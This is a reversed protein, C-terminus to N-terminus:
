RTEPYKGRYVGRNYNSNVLELRDSQEKGLYKLHKNLIIISVPEKRDLKDALESESLTIVKGRSYFQSSYSKKRFYYIGTEQIDPQSLILYKDTNSWQQLNKGTLGACFILLAALPLILSTYILTKKKETENWWYMVLLAVPMMVPLVYTHILSESVTFFLPTWLLWLLLFIVWRNKMLGARNKLVKHIVTLIWPLTGAVLFLWIIGLPQQKPFGYMDGKWTSDFFRKFHEGIIFYNLFGPSKKEALYYWPLAILLILLIGRLWPFSKFVTLYEKYLIIWLLLPPATLILVIPGKALLGLGIGTFFLWSWGKKEPENVTKWFSLMILVVSFSLTVDTSVVGMHLFFEPVTILVFAGFFHPLDRKLAFRSVILVMLISILLSPFRVAFENVGFIKISLASLWVSLVPKAWFPVNYDVQPTIWNGTEVMLRAIEAYRAETTDMLPIFANLIMRLLVMAVSAWLYFNRHDSINKVLLKM